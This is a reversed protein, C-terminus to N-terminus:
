FIIKIVTCFYFIRKNMKVLCHNVDLSLVRYNIRKSLLMLSFMLEPLYHGYEIEKIFCSLQM